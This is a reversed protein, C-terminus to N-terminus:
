CTRDKDITYDTIRWEAGGAKATTAKATWPRRTDDKDVTVPKGTARKVLVYNTTDVCDTITATHPDAKVDVATVKPTVTPKGTFTLGRGQYYTFAGIINEAAEGTTYDGLRAKKMSGSSYAEVQADWMGRYAALAKREAEAREKQEKDQGGSAKPPGPEDGGSSSCGTLLLVLAAAGGACVRRAASEGYTM